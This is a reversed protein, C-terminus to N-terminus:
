CDPFFPVYTGAGPVCVNCLGPPLHGEQGSGVALGLVQGLVGVTQLRPLPAHFRSGSSGSSGQGVSTQEPGPRALFCPAPPPAVAERRGPPGLCRQFVSPITVVLRGDAPLVDVEQGRPLVQGPMLRLEQLNTAPELSKTWVLGWWAQVDVTGGGELCGHLAPCAYWGVRFAWSCTDPAQGPCKAAAGWRYCRWVQRHWPQARPRLTCTSQSRGHPVLPLWPVPGAGTM